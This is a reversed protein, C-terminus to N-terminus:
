VGEVVIRIKTILEDSLQHDLTEAMAKIEAPLNGFTLKQLRSLNNGKGTIKGGQSVAQAEQTFKNYLTEFEEIKRQLLSLANESPFYRPMVLVKRDIIRIVGYYIVKYM